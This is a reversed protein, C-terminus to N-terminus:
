GAVLAAAALAFFLFAILPARRQPAARELCARKPRAPDYFVTVAAGPPYRDAVDKAQRRKPFGTESPFVRRGMYTRGGIEYRYTVDPVWWLGGALIGTGMGWRRVTRSKTVLGPTNPWDSARATRGRLFHALLCVLGAAAALAATALKLDSLDPGAEFM